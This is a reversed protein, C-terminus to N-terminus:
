LRFAFHFWFSRSCRSDLITMENEPWVEHKSCEDRLGGLQRELRTQQLRLSILENSQQEFKASFEEAEDHLTENEELITKAFSVLSRYKQQIIASEVQVTSADGDSSDSDDYGEAMPASVSARRAHVSGRRRGGGGLASLNAIWQPDAFLQNGTADPESCDDDSQESNDSATASSIVVDAAFPAGSASAVMIQLAQVFDALCVEGNADKAMEAWLVDLLDALAARREDCGLIILAERIENRSLAGNGDADLRHFLQVLVQDTAAAPLVPAATPEAQQAIGLVLASFREEDVSDASCECVVHCQSSGVVSLSPSSHAYSKRGSRHQM